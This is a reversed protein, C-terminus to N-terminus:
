LDNWGRNQRLSSVKEWYENTSISQAWAQRALVWILKKCMPHSRNLMFKQKFIKLFVLLCQAPGYGLLRYCWNELNHNPDRARIGAFATLYQRRENLHTSLEVHPRCLFYAYGYQNNRRSYYFYQMCRWCLM